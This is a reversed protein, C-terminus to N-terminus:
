STAAEVAQRLVPIGGTRIPGHGCAFRQIPYDLLRRASALATSKSWTVLASPIYWPTYASISLRGVAILADGAFLTGDREDLFAFHGPIHGPTAICRLSGYLEGDAIFHTPISHIGSLGGRIKAHGNGPSGPEGPHLSKDPPIQLLPISRESAALQVHPLRSILADVSGVHDVHAHTLLIRRIPADAASAAALIDNASGSIGTDILTFSDPEALTAAERVLYCNILGLRTLQISHATIPTSRM